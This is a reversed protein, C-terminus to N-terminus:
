LLSLATIRWRREISELRLAVARTRMRGSVVVTAEIAGDRPSFLRVSRIEHMVRYVQVRRASRARTALSTRTLLARYVEESMWRALQEPDRVGAVVELIGRVMNGVFVEVPSPTEPSPNTGLANLDCANQPACRADEPRRAAEPM